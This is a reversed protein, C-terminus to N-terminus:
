RDVEPLIVDLSGFIAMLDPYFANELLKPLIQVAYYSGTRWKVRYPNGSGNSKVYCSCVGRPAEVNSIYEGAPVKLTHQKVPSVVEGPNTKLWDVCQSILSLCVKMEEIRVKYRDLSDGNQATVAEFALEDYVLYPNQKRYDTKIGTARLNPGTISYQLASKKSIVGIERTRTVFIPNNTIINEYDQIKGPMKKIFDAIKRLWDHTVDHRLGGFTYYNYMLRQGTLEEFLGLIVERDRFTYFLPSTAGMDLLFTGLWLLHSTLRNMELTLVRIYQSRKSVEIQALNEVANCFAYANFFGGLYDIRDVTPLYQLYIRNEAMKEMGRHLYGIVPECSTIREGDLELVLRLVGHTSPHQPGINIKMKTLTQNAM